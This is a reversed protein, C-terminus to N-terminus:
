DTVKSLFVLCLESFVLLSFFILLHISLLVALLHSVFYLRYLMFCNVIIKEIHTPHPQISFQKISDDRGQNGVKQWNSGM